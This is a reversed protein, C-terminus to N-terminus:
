VRASEQLSAIPLLPRAFPPVALGQAAVYAALSTIVSAVAPRDLMRGQWAILPSAADPAPARVLDAFFRALVVTIDAFSYAGALYADRELLRELREYQSRIVAHRAQVEEGALGRRMLATIAPILVEDAELEARRAHARQITERPWLPPEPYRDELYEFIQTSDYIEVDGDVLVPVQGKPNIRVVEPHKPDYRRALDFPVWEVSCALQKDLLAVQAKAGFLSLPASYLKM